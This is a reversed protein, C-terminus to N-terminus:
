WRHQFSCIFTCMQSLQKIKTKTKKNTNNAHEIIQESLGSLYMNLTCLVEWGTTGYEETM